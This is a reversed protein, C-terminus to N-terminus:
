GEVVLHSLNGSFQSVTIRLFTHMELIDQGVPSDYNFPETGWSISISWWCSVHIGGGFSETPPKCAGKLFMFVELEQDLLM